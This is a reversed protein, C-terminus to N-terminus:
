SFTFNYLIEAPLIEFKEVSITAHLHRIQCLPKQGYFSAWLTYTSPPGMILDCGSLIYMDKLLHGPGKVIDLGQFNEENVPENSCVVFRIHLGPKSRILEHMKEAYEKQTYFYKGNAFLAFDGRRIHVGVLLDCGKRSVEIFAAIENELKVVPRFFKRILVAQSQFNQYDRFFRGFLFVLQKRRATAIYDPRNLDFFESRDFAYEPLDAILVEHLCSERFRLVKLIRFIARNMFFLMSRLRQGKLNTSQVPYRCYIDRSTSEFYEAYDDFALHVVTYKYVAANAIIHAFAFLRNGLQGSKNSIVIL